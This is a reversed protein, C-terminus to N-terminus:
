CKRPSRVAHNGEGHAVCLRDPPDAFRRARPHEVQNKGRHLDRRQRRAHHRRKGGKAEPDRNEDRPGAVPHRCDPGVRVTLAAAGRAPSNRAAPLRQQHRDAEALRVARQLHPLVGDAHRGEGGPVARRGGPARRRQSLARPLRPHPRLPRRQDDREHVARVLHLDAASEQSAHRRLARDRADPADQRSRGRRLHVASQLLAVASRGGRPLRRARVPELYRRHLYRLFLAPQSHRSRRRRSRRRRQRRRGGRRGPEPQPIEAVLPEGLDETVFAVPSGPRQVEALAEEIVAAYHKTLWDRFLANPVRVRIAGERDSVFATPKFWTYFSHRNVKTEIRALVQDWINSGTMANEPVKRGGPLGNGLCSLRGDRGNIWSSCPNLRSEGRHRKWLNKWLQPFRRPSVRREPRRSRRPSGGSQPRALSQVM